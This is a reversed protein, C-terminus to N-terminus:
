SITDDRFNCLRNMVNTLPFFAKLIFGQSEKLKRRNLMIINVAEWIGANVFPLVTHKASKTIKPAM